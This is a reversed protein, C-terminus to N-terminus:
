ERREAPRRQLEIPRGRGRGAEPVPQGQRAQGGPGSRRRPHEGRARPHPQDGLRQVLGRDPRAKRLQDPAPRLTQRRGASCCEVGARVGVGWRDFRWKGHGNSGKRAGHLSGAGTRKQATVKAADQEPTQPRAAAQSVPAESGRDGSPAAESARSAPTSQINRRSFACLRTPMASAMPTISGVAALSPRRPPPEGTRRAIGRWAGRLDSSLEITVSTRRESPPSLVAASPSTSEEREVRVPSTM